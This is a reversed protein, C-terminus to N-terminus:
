GGNIKLKRFGVRYQYCCILIAISMWAFIPIIRESANFGHVSSVIHAPGYILASFPTFKSITKMIDPYFDLPLIL